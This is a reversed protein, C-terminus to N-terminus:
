QGGRTRKGTAIRGKGAKVAADAQDRTMIYEGAKFAMVARKGPVPWSFPSHLLVRM